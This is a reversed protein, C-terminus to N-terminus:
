KREKRKSCVIGSMITLTLGSVVAWLILDNSDGTKSVYVADDMMGANHSFDVHGIKPSNSAKIEIVDLDESISIKHTQPSLLYGTPAKIEHILWDGYPIDEFKFLGEDNTISVLIANEETFKEEDPKFLGFMAEALPKDEDGTKYGTVEGRKLDNQIKDAEIDVVAIDQGQYKFEVPYKENNLVYHEDTYIEQVYYSGFPLDKEFKGVYSAYKETEELEPLQLEPKAEAPVFGITEILGGVPISKGDAAKIEEAAYIGFRIDKYIDKAKINFLEDEEILKKLSVEVKQRENKASLESIAVEVEQGAYKMEATLLTKDIVYGSPATKEEVEYKGLYLLKTKATGDAATTITDVVEGKVARVTGDPTIIEEAARVEFVAGALGGDEYVPTFTGDDNERITKLIEGTKVISITGKQAMDKQEVLLEELSGDVTFEIPEGLVYGSPAKKETLRYKGYYLPQSLKITGKNDTVFYGEESTGEIKEGTTLNTLEYETGARPIVKGTEADKKVIKIKSQLTENTLKFTYTKDHEEAAITVDFDEVFKHGEAGKTQHVTYTGHPLEGSIAKGDQGTTIVARQDAPAADYSGASKLFIEFVAGSEPRTQDSSADPSMQKEIAIKGTIIDVNFNIRMKVPDTYGYIALDQSRPAQYVYNVQAKSDYKQGGVTSLNDDTIRIARKSCNKTASVTLINSGKTHNLTIGDKTYSFTNYDEFVGNSDAINLSGGAVLNYTKADFSPRTSWTDLKSQVQAKFSEYESVMSSNLFYSNYQGNTMGNATLTIAPLTQWIMMQTMAYYWDRTVQDNWVAPNDQHTLFGLYAIKSQLSNDQMVISKNYDAVFTPTQNWVNGNGDRIANGAETCFAYEGGIQFVTIGGQYGDPYEAWDIVKHWNKFYSGLSRMSLTVKETAAFTPMVSMALLLTAVVIAIGKSLKKKMSKEKIKSQINFLAGM